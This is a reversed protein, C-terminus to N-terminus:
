DYIDVWSKIRDDNVLIHCIGKKELNGIMGIIATLTSKSLTTNTIKELVKKLREYGNPIDDDYYTPSIGEWADDKLANFQQDGDAFVERVSRQVSEASYFARRQESFHHLLNKPLSDLDNPTILQNLKQAYVECLANIYPMEEHNILSQPVLQIPLTIEESDLYITHTNSDYRTPTVPSFPVGNEDHDNSRGGSFINVVGGAENQTYINNTGAQIVPTAPVNNIQLNTKKSM